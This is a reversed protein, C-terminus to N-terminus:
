GFGVGGVLVVSVFLWLSPCGAILVLCFGALGVAAVYDFNATEFLGPCFLLSSALFSAAERGTLLNFLL